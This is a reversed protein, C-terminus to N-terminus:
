RHFANGPPQTGAPLLVIELIWTRSLRVISRGSIRRTPRGLCTTVCLRCASPIPVLCSATDLAEYGIGRNTLRKVYEVGNLCRKANYLFYTYFNPFFPGFDRETGYVYYHNVM